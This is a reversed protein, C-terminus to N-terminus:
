LDVKARLFIFQGTFCSRLFKSGTGRERYVATEVITTWFLMLARSLALLYDPFYESFQLLYTLLESDM